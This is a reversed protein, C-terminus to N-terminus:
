EKRPLGHSIMLEEAYRKRKCRSCTEFIEKPLDIKKKLYEIQAETGVTEGCLKCRRLSLNTHWRELRREREIDESKVAGTPCVFVCAGCGICVESNISYPTDVEEEVGRNVLDIAGVGIIEECVRVCLGCLICDKDEKPFRKGTIGMERALDKIVEVGPCRALLFEVILRRTKLIRETDTRIEITRRIPYNCATVVRTRKGETVEVSCLRCSGFPTLAKHYCLTPIKIGMKEAQELVTIGEASKAKVGNITIEVM